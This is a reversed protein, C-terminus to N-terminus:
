GCVDRAMDALGDEVTGLGMAARRENVTDPNELPQLEFTGEASCEWTPQTGYRQKRGTNVAVRDWLYAYNERSVGGTDLYPEMHSLVKTQFKPHDDAHQVLIWAHDSVKDGFRMRDIWDYTELLGEIYSKSIGDVRTVHAVSRRQAWFDSGSQDETALNIYTRRASQDDRWLRIIEAQIPHLTEDKAPSDGGKRALSKREVNLMSMFKSDGEAMIRICAGADPAAHAIEMAAKELLAQAIVTEAVTGDEADLTQTITVPIILPTARDVSDCVYSLDDAVPPDLPATELSSCSALLLSLLLLHTRM